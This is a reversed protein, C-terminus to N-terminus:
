SLTSSDIIALMSGTSLFLACRVPTRRVCVGCLRCLAGYGVNGGGMGLRLPSAPGDAGSGLITLGPRKPGPGTVVESAYAAPYLKGV